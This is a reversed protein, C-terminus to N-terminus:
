RKYAKSRHGIAVVLVVLRNQEISCIIRYDRVRYRWLGSFEYGLAHGFSKPDTAAAIRSDLYKTIERQIPKDLKALDRKAQEDFEITWAL